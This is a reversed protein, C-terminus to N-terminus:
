KQCTILHAIGCSLPTAKLNHFGLTNLNDTLVTPHVFAQISSSLYRYAEPKQTLLGGLKPLIHNLYLRHSFRILPNKPETLELISFSGGPKLVRYVEQFCKIPDKVNRIGYAITVADITNAPLPIAQADGEIFSIEHTGFSRKQAMDLMEPCFDLLIAKKLEKKGKLWRYTIEGTGACLDLLVKPSGKDASQVLKRNWLNHLGLSLFLNANDYRPAIAGFMTKITEPDNKKMTKPLM